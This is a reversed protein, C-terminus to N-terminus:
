STRLTPPTDEAAVEPLAPPTSDEAAVEPLACDQVVAETPPPPLPASDM